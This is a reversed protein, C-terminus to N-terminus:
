DQKPQWYVEQCLGKIAAAFFGAALWIFSHDITMGLVTQHMQWGVSGKEIGVSMFVVALLWALFLSGALIVGILKYLETKRTAPRPQTVLWWLAFAMGVANVFALHVRSVKEPRQRLEEPLEDILPTISAVADAFAQMTPWDAVWEWPFYACFLVFGIYSGWLRFSVLFYGANHRRFEEPSLSKSFETWENDWNMRGM